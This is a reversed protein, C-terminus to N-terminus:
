YTHLRKFSSWRIAQDLDFYARTRAGLNTHRMHAFRLEATAVAQEPTAAHIEINEQPAKFQHGNSDLVDKLFTVVYRSM